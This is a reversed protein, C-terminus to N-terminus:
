RKMEVLTVSYRIANKGVFFGFFSDNESAMEKGKIYPCCEIEM